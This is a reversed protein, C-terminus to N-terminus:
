LGTEEREKQLQLYDWMVMRYYYLYFIPYDLDPNNGKVLLPQGANTIVCSDSYTHLLWDVLAAAEQRIQASNDPNGATKILAEAILLEACHEYKDGFNSSYPSNEKGSSDPACFNEYREFEEFRLYDEEWAERVCRLLYAEAETLMAKAFPEPNETQQLYGYLSKIVYATHTRSVERDGMRCFAGIHAGVRLQESHIYYLIELLEEDLTKCRVELSAAFAADRELFHRYLQQLKQKLKLFTDFVFLTPLLAGTENEAYTYGWFALIRGNANIKQKENDLLRQTSEWLFDVRNKLAEDPLDRLELFGCAILASLSITTQNITGEIGMHQGNFIWSSPWTKEYPDRIAVLTNIGTQVTDEFWKLNSKDVTSGMDQHLHHHIIMTGFCVACVSIGSGTTKPNCNVDWYVFHDHPLACTNKLKGFADVMSPALYPPGGQPDHPVRVPDYVVLPNSACFGNTQEAKDERRYPPRRSNIISQACARLNENVQEKDLPKVEEAQHYYQKLNNKFVCIEELCGLAEMTEKAQKDSVSSWSFHAFVSQIQATYRLSLCNMSNIANRFKEGFLDCVIAITEPNTEGGDVLIPILECDNKVANVIEHYVINKGLNLKRHTIDAAGDTGGIFDCTQRYTTVIDDFFGPCIAIFIRRMTPMFTQIGIEDYTYKHTPPYCEEYLIPASGRFHPEENIWWNLMGAVNESAAYTPHKENRRRYCVFSRYYPYKYDM